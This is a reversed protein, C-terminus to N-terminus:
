IAKRHLRYFKLATERAENLREMVRELTTDPPFEYYPMDMHCLWFTGHYEKASFEDRIGNENENNRNQRYREMLRRLIKMDTEEQNEKENIKKEKNGMDSFLKDVYQPITKFLYFYFGYLLAFWIGSVIYGTTTM